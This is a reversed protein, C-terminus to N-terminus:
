WFRAPSCSNAMKSLSSWEHVVRSTGPAGPFGIVADSESVSKVSADFVDSRRQPNAAWEFPDFHGRILAPYSPLACYSTYIAQREPISALATDDGKLLALIEEISLFFLKEGQGTLAGARLVFARLPWFARAQESRAAEREHASRRARAIKCRMKAAQRPYRHQFRDWAAEQAEKQRALLTM